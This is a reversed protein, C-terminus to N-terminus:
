LAVRRRFRERLATRGSKGLNNRTLDLRRLNALHPSAALALAGEDGIANRNLSLESLSALHPSNALARAGADGIENWGMRLVALHPMRSSGVVAVAAENGLGNASLDLSRLQTLDRSAVLPKVHRTRIGSENMDLDLIHALQPAAAMERVRPGIRRRFSAIGDLDGCYLSESRLCLTTILGTVPASQWLPEPWYLFEEIPCDARGPFGRVFYVFQRMPLPLVELWAPGNADWLERLRKWRRSRTSTSEGTNRTQGIDLQIYEAREPDGNTKLWDAYRLPADDEPAALIDRLFAGDEATPTREKRRKKAM